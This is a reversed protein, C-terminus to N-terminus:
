LDWTWFTDDKKAIEEKSQMSIGHKWYYIFLENAINFAEAYEKDESYKHLDCRVACPIGTNNVMFELAAAPNTIELWVLKDGVRAEVMKCSPSFRGSIKREQIEEEIVEPMYWTGRGAQGIMLKFGNKEWVKSKEYVQALWEEPCWWLQTQPNIDVCIVDGVPFMFDVRTPINRVIKETEKMHTDIPEDKSKTIVRKYRKELEERLVDSVKEGSKKIKELLDEKIRVSVKVDGM